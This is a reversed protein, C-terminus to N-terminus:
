QTSDVAGHRRAARAGLYALAVLAAAVAGRLLQPTMALSGALHVDSHISLAQLGLLAGLALALGGPILVRVFAAALVLLLGFAALGLDAAVAMRSRFLLDIAAVVISYLGYIVMGLTAATLM